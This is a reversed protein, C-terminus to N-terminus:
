HLLLLLLLYGNIHSQKHLTSLETTPQPRSLHSAQRQTNVICWDLVYLNFWIPVEIHRDVASTNVERRHIDRSEMKSTMAAKSVIRSKCARM